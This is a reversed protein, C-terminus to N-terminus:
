PVLTMFAKTILQRSVDRMRTQYYSVRCEFTKKTALTVTERQTRKADRMPSPVGMVGVTEAGPAQNSLLDFFTDQWDLAADNRLGYFTIRVRDECLQTHSLNQDLVPFSGLADTGPPDVHVAGYPPQANPPVLHSPFMPCQSTLTLWFPLSNSVVPLTSIQGPEDILHDLFAPYVAEGRYHNLGAATYYSGRQSFAFRFPTESGATGIWLVDPSVRVLDQIETKTSFVVSNVTITEDERQDVDAAYHLSGEVVMGYPTDSPIPASSSSGKKVGIAGQGVAFLGIAGNPLTRQVPLANGGDAMFADFASAGPASNAPVLRANVWFVSGDTPLVMKVYRIFTVQQGVSLTRIGDRLASSMGNPAGALIEDAVGM